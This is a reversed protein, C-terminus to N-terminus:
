YGMDLEQAEETLQRAIDLRKAKSAKKYTMLDSFLVRRHTGVKHHPIKGKDLLTVLYPRSVNLLDAAQQTTLESHLPTLTVTNGQAMQELIYNLLKLAPAPLTVTEAGDKFRLELSTDLYTDLHAALFRSSEAALRQEKKSPATARPPSTM